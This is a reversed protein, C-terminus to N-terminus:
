RARGSRRERDGRSLPMRADETSMHVQCRPVQGSYEGVRVGHQGSVGTNVVLLKLAKRSTHPRTARMHTRRITSGRLAPDSINNACRECGPVAAPTSLRTQRNYGMQRPPYKLVAKGLEGGRHLAATPPLVPSMVCLSQGDQAAAASM